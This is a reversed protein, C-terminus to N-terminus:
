TWRCGTPAGPCSTCSRGCSGTRAAAVVARCCDGDAPDGVGASRWPSAASPTPAAGPPPAALARSREDEAADRARRVEAAYGAREIRKVMQRVNRMPAARSPSRARRRRDGRRRAGARDLGTDGAGSRRRRARLLRDGGADLRPARAERLFPAIAGPWAEPDGLPDGSALMVGSVVRYAIAAKGSESWVVSKDRRLAFYGLSDRAQARAPARMRDEDEDTLKPRPEPARLALYVTTLATLLGLGLLVAGVLDGVRESRSSVPGTSARGARLVEQVRDWVTAPGGAVTGRALAVVLYGIVLSVVTLVLLARVARWRTTPDGLAYFEARYVILVVLLALPILAAVPEAKLGHVVVSLSLLVVVVRWARRKRRRLAHALLLLLIGTIVTVASAAGAM